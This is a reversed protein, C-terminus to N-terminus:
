VGQEEKFSWDRIKKVVVPILNQRNIDIWISRYVIQGVTLRIIEASPTTETVEVGEMENLKKLDKVKQAEKKWVYLEVFPRQFKRLPDEPHGECSSMTIMFYHNNIADVLPRIGKEIGDIKGLQEIKGLQKEKLFRWEGYSM